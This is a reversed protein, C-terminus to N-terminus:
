RIQKWFLQTLLGIMFPFFLSAAMRCVSLKWGLIPMEAILFRHFGLLSWACIYTMLPAVAVGSKLLAAVIPFQILPGGPTLIGALTAIALGRMGSEEGLWRSIFERPLVKSIIGAAIFALLLVPAVKVFLKLGDKLGEAPLGPDKLYALVIVAVALVLMIVITINLGKMMKGGRLGKM